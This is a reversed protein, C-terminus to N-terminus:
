WTVQMQVVQAVAFLTLSSILSPLKVRVRTEGSLVLLYRFSAYNERDCSDVFVVMVHRNCGKLQKMLIDLVLNAFVCFRSPKTVCLFVILHLTQWQPTSLPKAKQATVEGPLNGVFKTISLIFMHCSCRLAGARNKQLLSTAVDILVTM